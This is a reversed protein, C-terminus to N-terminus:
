MVIFVERRSGIVRIKTVEFKTRETCGLTIMPQLPFVKRSHMGRIGECTVDLPLWRPHRWEECSGTQISSVLTTTYTHVQVLHLVQVVRMIWTQYLRITGQPPHGKSCLEKTHWFRSSTLSWSPDTLSSLSLTSLRSM